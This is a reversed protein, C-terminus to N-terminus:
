PFWLFASRGLASAARIVTEMNRGLFEFLASGAATLVATLIGLGWGLLINWRSSRLTEAHRREEAEQRAKAEEAKRDHHRIAWEAKPSHGYYAFNGGLYLVCEILGIEEFQLYMGQYYEDNKVAGARAFEIETGSTLIRLEDIEEDTLLDVAHIDLPKDIGSTSEM